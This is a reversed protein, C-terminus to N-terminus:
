DDFVGGVNGDNRIALNELLTMSGSSTLTMFQVSGDAIAFNAGGPHASSFSNFKKDTWAFSPNPGVGEPLEYNIPELMGVICDRASASSSWAWGRFTNFRPYEDDRSYREGILFTNSSGDSIDGFGVSSNYYLM